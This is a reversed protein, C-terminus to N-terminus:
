PNLIISDTLVFPSQHKQQDLLFAKFKLTDGVTRMLVPNMDIYIDGELGAQGATLHPIRYPYYLSDSATCSSCPNQVFVWHGTPDRHYVTLVMNSDTSNPAVGIDGDGDTFSFIVNLSDATLKFAKFKLSPEVPFTPEPRCGEWLSVALVAILIIGRFYKM